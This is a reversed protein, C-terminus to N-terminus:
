VQYFVVPSIFLRFLVIFTTNRAVNLIRPDSIGQQGVLLEYTLSIQGSFLPSPASCMVCNSIVAPGFMASPKVSWLCAIQGFSVHTCQAYLRRSNSLSFAVHISLDDGKKPM